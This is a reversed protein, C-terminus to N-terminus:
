FNWQTAMAQAIGPFTKSRITERDPGPPCKHIEDTRLEKPVIETPTLAPLNVLWLMTAKKTTHGFMWPQIVQTPKEGIIEMAYKHLVPQEIYGKGISKVISLASKLYTAAEEMLKYRKPNMYIQYKESWEYGARPTESTLWRVGSNAMYRCVPHVGLFEYERWEGPLIYDFFDSKIHWEPFGGYCDVIDLSFAIHGKDRFAKTVEQSAEHSILVRM